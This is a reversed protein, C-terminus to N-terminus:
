CSYVACLCGHVRGTCPWPRHVRGHVRGTFVSAKKVALSLQCHRQHYQVEYGIIDSRIKYMVSTGIEGHILKYKVVPAGKGWFQGEWPPDPGWRVCSEKPGDSGVFWM